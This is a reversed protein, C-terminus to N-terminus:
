IRVFFERLPLFGSLKESEIKSEREREREKERVTKKPFLIYGSIELMQGIFYKKKLHTM